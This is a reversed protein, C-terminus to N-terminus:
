FELPMLRVEASGTLRNRRYDLGLDSLDVKALADVLGARGLDRGAGRLARLLIEAVLNAHAQDPGTGDRMMREVLHPADLVLAVQWGAAALASGIQPDTRLAQPLLYATRRNGPHQPLVAGTGVLLAAPESDPAPFEFGLAETLPLPVQGVALVGGADGSQARMDRAIIAAMDVFTASVGRLISADETGDLIMRPFLVPVSNQVAAAIQAGAPAGILALVDDTDPATAELLRLEIRRGHLRGGPLRKSLATELAKAYPVGPGVVGFTILDPSVGARDREPLAKLYSVLDQAQQPSVDRYRPMSRSLGRGDLGIGQGLVLAMSDGDLRRALVILDPATGETGGRGDRGHCAHCPSRDFGPVQGTFMALGRDIRGPDSMGSDALAPAACVLGLIAVVIAIARANM